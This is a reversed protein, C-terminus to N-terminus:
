DNSPQQAPPPQQYQQQDQQVDKQKDLLGKLLKDLDTVDLRLKASTERRQATLGFTRSLVTAKDLFDSTKRKRTEARKKATKEIEKIQSDHYLAALTDKSEIAETKKLNLERLDKAEEKSYGAKGMHEGYKYDREAKRDVVRQFGGQGQAKGVKVKVKAKRLAAGATADIAKGVKGGRIDYSAKAGYKLLQMAKQGGYKEHKSTWEKVKENESLKKSAWGFGRRGLFGGTAAGARLGLGAGVAGVGVAGKAWKATATSINDGMSKAAKQAFLIFGIILMYTILIAVNELPEGGVNLAGLLSQGSCDTGSVNMANCVANNNTIIIVLLILFTYVPLIFTNSMLRGLWNSWFKETKPLIMAVFAAPALVLIFILSVTRAIFMIGVSIFSIAAVFIAFAGLIIMISEQYLTPQNESGTGPESSKLITPVNLNRALSYSLPTPQNIRPANISGADEDVQLAIPTAATYFFKGL